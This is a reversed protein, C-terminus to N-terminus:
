GVALEAPAVGREDVKDRLAHFDGQAGRGGGGDDRDGLVTLTTVARRRKLTSRATKRRTRTRTRHMGDDKEEKDKEEKDKEEKDNEEQDNEEKKHQEAARRSQPSLLPAPSCVVAVVALVRAVHRHDLLVARGDSRLGCSVRAPM